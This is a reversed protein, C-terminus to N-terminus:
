FTARWLANFIFDGCSWVDCKENYEGKLVEPSVYYPTGVKTKMSNRRKKDSSVVYSKSLGFDIIKIPSDKDNSKFLLNEPKLDRHCINKSHCYAIASMVQKFIEAAERETYMKDKNVNEIIREFLEGGTCQEMIMYIFRQDEFIEYLNVINPHDMQSLINIEKNFLEIDEIKEKSLKKCARLETSTKHKVQYVHGFGGSGIEKIIDYHNSLTDENKIVFTEKDFLISGHKKYNM